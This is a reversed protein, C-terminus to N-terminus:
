SKYANVNNNAYQCNLCVLKKLLTVKGKKVYIFIYM